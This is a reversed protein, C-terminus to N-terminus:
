CRVAVAVDQWATLARERVEVIQLTGELSARLHETGHFALGYGGGIGPLDADTWLSRRYPVFVFEEARLPGREFRRRDCWATSVAGSRFQEFAHAGHVSLLLAGGPALLRTLETLWLETMARDLHSFVSVSYVIDFSQDAYPLPPHFSTLSWTQARQHEAAWTIAQADVDCGTGAAGPFLATFHPLVRGAGCGFDLVARARPPVAGTARLLGALEAAAQRGGEAFAHAEPAGARARLRRPPLQAGGEAAGGLRARGSEVLERLRRM